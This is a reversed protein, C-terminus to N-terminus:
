KIDLKEKMAENEKELKEMHKKMNEMEEEMAKIIADRYILQYTFEGIQEKFKDLIDQVQIENM